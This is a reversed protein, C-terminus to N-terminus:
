SNPKGDNILIIMDSINIKLRNLDKLLDEKSLLDSRYKKSITRAFRWIHDLDMPSVAQHIM